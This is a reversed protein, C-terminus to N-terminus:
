RPPRSGLMAVGRRSFGRAHVGAPVMEMPPTCARTAEISAGLPQRRSPRVGTRLKMSSRSGTNMRSGPSWTTNAGIAASPHSSM